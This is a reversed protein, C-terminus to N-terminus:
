AEDGEEEKAEADAGENNADADAEAEEDADAEPEEMEDEGGEEVDSEFESLEEGDPGVKKRPPELLVLKANNKLQSDRFLTTALEGMDIVRDLDPSYMIFGRQQFMKFFSVRTEIASMSEDPSVEIKTHYSQGKGPVSVEVIFYVEVELKSGEELGLTDLTASEGMLLESFDQEAGEPAPEAPQQDAEQGDEADEAKKAPKPCSYIRCACM